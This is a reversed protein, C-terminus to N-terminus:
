ARSRADLLAPFVAFGHPSRDTSTLAFPGPDPRSDAIRASCVIPMSTFDIRSTVGIGCLPQRGVLRRRTQNAIRSEHNRSISHSSVNSRDAAQAAALPHLQEQLTLAAVRLLAGDLFPVERRPLVPLRPLLLERAVPHLQTLLLLDLANVTHQLVLEAAVELLRLPRAADGALRQQLQELPPQVVDGIAKAERGRARLRPLQHAVAVERHVALLDVDRRERDLRAVHNGDPLGAPRVGRDSVGELFHLSAAHR